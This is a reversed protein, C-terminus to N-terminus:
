SACPCEVNGEDQQVPHHQRRHHIRTLAFQQLQKLQTEADHRDPGALSLLVHDHWVQM